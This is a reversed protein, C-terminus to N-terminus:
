FRLALRGAVLRGVNLGATAAPSAANCVHVMRTTEKILFDEVLNGDPRVAQARVGAPARELDEGRMEPILRRLSGLYVKKSLAQRIEFLGKRWHRRAMRRFGPYALMEVLDRVNAQGFRYGERAFALVASPGCMVRGDVMRTIHVGLFPYAPDPVPYILHRCLHRASPKLAYYEGRFPLVQVGPDQGSMRALRDAFLGACNVLYRARVEGAATTLTLGDAYAALGQVAAGTVVAHGREVLCDALRLCVGRYDVIGAEPVLLAEVGVAHPERERLREPGIRECAVGNARGRAEIARLGPCDAETVAVIVKGCVEHAVGEARCFALLARRGERCNEAKLSGPRYYIGSHIVGSNRGTQHMALAAEKELVVLTKGPYHLALHYATALGVIGGGVIAVDYQM